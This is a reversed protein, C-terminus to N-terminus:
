IKFYSDGKIRDIIDSTMIKIYRFFSRETKHGTITMIEYTKLRGTLYMNTAASRRATHSSILEWKFKSETILQGGRVYTYTIVEDFGIEKCIEKIQRNFFQNSIDRPLNGNYKAYLQRVHQHIPIKVEKGTKKAIKVIVDNQFNSSDLTSYDSYRLATLCGVIFLDRIREQSKNLGKYYYIRTIDNASLYVSFVDCKDVNANMYSPDILYGDRCARTVVSQISGVLMNMYNQKLKLNELYTVFCDLFEETISNIYIDANYLESFAKIHYLMTRNSNRTSEKIRAGKRALYDTVYTSFLVGTKPEKANSLRIFDRKASINSNSTDSM